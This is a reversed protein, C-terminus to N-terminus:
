NNVIGLISILLIFGIAIGITLRRRREKIRNYEPMLDKTLAEKHYDKLNLDDNIADVVDVLSYRTPLRDKNNNVWLQVNAPLKVYTKTSM